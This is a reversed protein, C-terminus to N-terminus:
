QKRNVKYVKEGERVMGYRERAVKEIAKRDGDLAKSEAQLARTETEAERIKTELETKEQQLRVRQLIGRNGFVLYVALPVGIVLAVVLRRNRILKRVLGAIDFAKKKRRYFLNDM